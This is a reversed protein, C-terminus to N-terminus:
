FEEIAGQAPYVTLGHSKWMRIVSPRDDVVFAIQEKPVLKLLSALIESKVVTDDRHDDERRMFLHSFPIGHATLWNLTTRGTDMGKFKNPRGSVVIVNYQPAPAPTECQCRSPWTPYVELPLAKFCAMCYGHWHFLNKAWKLIAEHPTDLHIHQYFGYWDKKEQKVFHLRHRIDALTGDVDFIAIPRQDFKLLGFDLFQREIVARGVQERGQRLADRAVCTEFDADLHKWELRTKRQQSFQEWMERVSPALNTDDIVVNYGYSLAADAAAREVAKVVKERTHSWVGDFLMIRLADRNLRVTNGDQKVLGRALTSKGAAAPAVLGTIKPM